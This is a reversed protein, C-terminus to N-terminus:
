QVVKAFLLRPMLAWLDTAQEPEVRAVIAVADPGPCRPFHDFEHDVIKRAVDL